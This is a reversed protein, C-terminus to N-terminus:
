MALAVRERSVWRQQHKDPEALSWVLTKLQQTGLALLWAEHTSMNRGCIRLEEVGTLQRVPLTADWCPLAPGISLRTLTSDFVKDLTASELYGTLSLNQVNVARGRVGRALGLVSGFTALSTAAGYGRADQGEGVAQEVAEHLVSQSAWQTAEHQRVDWTGSYMKYTAESAEYVGKAEAPAAPRVTVMVNFGSRVLPLPHDFRDTVSGPRALHCLVQAYPLVFANRPPQEVPPHRKALFAPKTLKPAGTILLVPYHECKGNRCPLPVRSGPKALKVLGPDEEERRRIAGLYLDLAAQAEFVPAITTPSHYGHARFDLGRTAKIVELAEWIAAGRCGPTSRDWRWAERSVCGSPLLTKDLSTAIWHSTFGSEPGLGATYQYADVVTRSLPWWYSPLADQPGIHLSTIMKAREPSALLAQHLAYLASPRTIAVTAWLLPTVQANFERCVLALNYMTGTGVEFPSLSFSYSSVPSPSHYALDVILQRLELPLSAFSALPARTRSHAKSSRQPDDDATVPRRRKKTPMTIVHICHIYRICRPSSPRSALSSPSRGRAPSNFRESGHRESRGRVAQHWLPRATSCRAILTFFLFKPCFTCGLVSLRLSGRLVPWSAVKGLGCHGRGMQLAGGEGRESM